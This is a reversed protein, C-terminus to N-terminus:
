DLNRMTYLEQASLYELPPWMEQKVGHFFSELRTASHHGVSALRGLTNASSASVMYTSTSGQLDCM